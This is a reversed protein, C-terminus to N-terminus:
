SSCDNKLVINLPPVFTVTPPSVAVVPILAAICYLWCSSRVEVRSSLSQPINIVCAETSLSLNSM